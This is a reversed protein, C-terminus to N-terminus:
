ISRGQLKSHEGRLEQLMMSEESSMFPPCVLTPVEAPVEEHPCIPMPANRTTAPRINVWREGSCDKPMVKVERRNLFAIIKTRTLFIAGFIIGLFSIAFAALGYVIEWQPQTLGKLFSDMSHTSNIVQLLEMKIRNHDRDNTMTTNIVEMLEFKIRDQDQTLSSRQSEIISAM